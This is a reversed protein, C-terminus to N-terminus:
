QFNAWPSTASMPVALPAVENNGAGTLGNNSVLNPVRYNFGGNNRAVNKFVFNDKTGTDFLIGDFHNNSSTNSEITGGNGNVHIGATGSGTGNATANNGVIRVNSAAQIGDIGNGSANNGMVLSDDGSVIGNITNQLVTCGVISSMAADGADIGTGNLAATCDKITCNGSPYIGIGSNSVATCGIITCHNQINFGYINGASTSATITCSEGTLIGNNTNAEASIESLVNSNGCALGAGSDGLNQSVRLHDFQSNTANTCNIGSGGWSQASGNRIRLNQHAAPVTIGSFSGTVGILAFGNLDLTVNDARISIGSKGSVGTINGTLYYSGPAIIIFQNASDGPTNAANVITRAEIQDLSKMTPAPPGPPTLSGQAFISMTSTFLFACMLASFRLSTKM